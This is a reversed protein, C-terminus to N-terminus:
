QAGRSRLGLTTLEREIEPPFRTVQPKGLKAMLRGRKTVKDMNWRKATLVQEVTLNRSRSLDSGCLDAGELIANQLDTGHFTANHLLADTLDADRLDLGDLPFWALGEGRLQKTGISQDKEGWKWPPVRSVVDLGLYDYDTQEFLKGNPLWITQRLEKGELSLETKLKIVRSERFYVIWTGVQLPGNHQTKWRHLYGELRVSQEELTVPRAVILFHVRQWNPVFVAGVAVLLVALTLFILTRASTM